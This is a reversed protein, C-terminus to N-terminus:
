FYGWAQFICIRTSKEKRRRKRSRLTRWQWTEETCSVHVGEWERRHRSQEPGDMIITIKSAKVLRTDKKKWYENEFLLCFMMLMHVYVRSGCQRPELGLQAM